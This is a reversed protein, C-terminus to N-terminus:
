ASLATPPGRPSYRRHFTQTSSILDSDISCRTGLPQLQYSAAIAIKGKASVSGVACSGCDADCARQFTAVSPQTTPADNSIAHHGTQESFRKLGCFAEATESSAPRRLKNKHVQIAAHCTGNMCSGAAHPARAACCELHCTNSASVSALPVTTCTFAAALLLALAIRALVASRKSVLRNMSHANSQTV